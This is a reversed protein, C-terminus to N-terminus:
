VYVKVNLNMDGWYVKKTQVNQQGMESWTITRKLIM